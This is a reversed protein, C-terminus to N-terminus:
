AEPIKPDIEDVTILVGPHPCGPGTYRKWATQFSVGSDDVWVIGKLADETSRTLKTTDPKTTHLDPADPKLKSANRGTGYHCKPRPFVFEFRFRLPACLLGRGKMAKAAAAAVTAKWPASRKCADILKGGGVHKKSGGPAPIGLVFFRITM